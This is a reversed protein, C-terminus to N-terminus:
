HKNTNGCGQVCNGVCNGNPLNNQYKHKNKKGCGAKVNGGKCNNIKEVPGDADGASLAASFGGLLKSSDNVSLPNFSMGPNNM